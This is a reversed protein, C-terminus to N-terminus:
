MGADSFESRLAREVGGSQQRGSLAGGAATSMAGVERLESKAQRSLEILRQLPALDVKPTVTGNLEQLDSGAQTTAISMAEIQSLDVSSSASPTVAGAAPESRGIIAIPPREEPNNAQRPEARKPKSPAPGTKPPAEMFVRIPEPIMNVVDGIMGGVWAKIEAVKAKLGSWLSEMAAIGVNYLQGALGSIRGPLELIAVVAAGVGAGASAGWQAWTAPSIEGFFGSVTHRRLRTREPAGPHGLPARQQYGEDRAM